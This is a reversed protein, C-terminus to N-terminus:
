FNNFQFCILSILLLLYLSEYFWKKSAYLFYYAFFVAAPVICLIFHNLHFASNVYFSFAAILFIFFLLQFSKRIQVYSKFFNQQLKFFCLVLILIVPILLLYSKVNISIHDPFKTGLPLFINSFKGLRDNLYYFVALFFFITGYGLVGALWERWNFPKFLVLAIWIALFLYIFPFYILSGLAVIMGLDYSTSKADDGKYLNFLKFLMWIVLFNCILPASLMLFPAFLGSLTVYMLAPLFTPKGLLNYFNILYNLLLAQIFVLVGAILVNLVPSFAYEYAVPVLLRAFPEVFVFELKDPVHFLYGLRSLFLVVVLWIVNLPNFSRFINIM